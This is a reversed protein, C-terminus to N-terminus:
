GMEMQGWVVSGIDQCPPSTEAATLHAHVEQGDNDRVIVVGDLAAGTCKNHADTSTVAVSVHLWAARLDQREWVAESSSSQHRYQETDNYEETLRKM